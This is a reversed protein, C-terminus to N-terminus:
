RGEKPNWTACGDRVAGREVLGERALEGLRRGIAQRWWEADRGEVDRGAAIVGLQKTTCGPHRRVLALASAQARGLHPLFSEAAQRSTDPDTRGVLPRAAWCGIHYRPYGAANCDPCVLAPAFGPLMAPEPM